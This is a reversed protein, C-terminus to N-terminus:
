QVLLNMEMIPLMVSLVIMGIVLGMFIIILPEILSTLSSVTLDIETEYVNGINIMMTDLNDSAEGAAIMGLVMRPLFESKALAKSVSSGERIKVAAESIKKEIVVNGVIKQVIEFSKMIDVKNSMLVGLNQTFRLVILKRYLNKFLPVNLKWEDIKKKGEETSSFRRYVYVFLIVFLPIFFWFDSLINSLGVVIETPLPLEKKQDTFMESISPIVSVLLFIVVITAFFFMFLPYYLAAQVKSKLMNKKEEMEALREVVHDLSGLNEGVRVMNIYMESFINKHRELANSFSSGEEIKEKVDAIINRFHKNEIQDIIDNIAMPLSMGAKLLTALQRSFLGVQKSSFRLTLERSLRDLLGSFSSKKTTDRDSEAVEQKEIKVPYLGQARIKSRASAETPADIYDSVTDGKRDLADYQFIM